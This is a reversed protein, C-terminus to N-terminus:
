PAEAAPLIDTLGALGSKSAFAALSSQISPILLFLPEIALDNALRDRDLLGEKTPIDREGHEMSAIARDVEVAAIVQRCGHISAELIELKPGSAGAQRLDERLAILTELNPRHDIDNYALFDPCGYCSHGPLPACQSKTGCSGMPSQNIAVKRRRFAASPVLTGMFMDAIPQTRPTLHKQQLERANPGLIERYNRAAHLTEHGVTMAIVDQPVGAETMATIRTKRTRRFTFILPKGTRPSVIACKIIAIKIEQGLACPSSKLLDASQIGSAERRALHSQLYQNTRRLPFLPVPHQYDESLGLARRNELIQEKIHNAIKETIPMTLGIEEGRLSRGPKKANPVALAYTSFKTGPIEIYHLPEFESKLHVETLEAISAANAGFMLALTCLLKERSTLPGFKVAHNIAQREDMSFAGKIPNRERDAEYPSPQRAPNVELIWTDERGLPTFHDPHRERGWAYWQRVTNFPPNSGRPMIERSATLMAELEKFGLQIWSAPALGHFELRRSIRIIDRHKKYASGPTGTEIWLIALHKLASLLSGRFAVEGWHIRKVIPGDPLLWAPQRLDVLSGNKAIVTDPISQVQVLARQNM